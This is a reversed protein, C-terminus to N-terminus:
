GKLQGGVPIPVPDQIRRLREWYRWHEDVAAYNDTVSM